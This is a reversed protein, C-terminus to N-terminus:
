AAAVGVRVGAQFLARLHAANRHVDFEAEMLRRANAALRARLAPSSLLREIAAALAAPDHQPVMLGTEGDRLVEPIGTVDTSVCPTGLAMAELLVTPLGDRDSDGGVVCPAAFLAGEQVYRMIDAQPRPGVIQVQADLGYHAIRARLDAELPGAGVIQCEFARGGRALLACAEVLDAFGKKEVLRGVAVVRPPRAQSPEFRFHDLDLGNYVRHVRAAAPGYVRRLYALNYDSVTVVAAAERLKRALDDPRVSEHFIDKAHATFTFPLGSFHAALRAVTTATTGFHAHLHQLGKQRAHRAILLAQYLDEVEEGRAADLSAWGGTARTAEQVLAWLDSSRRPQTLLYRVPARVRAITDQFHPDDFPRLSFIEIEAGAAEHALIENVIFTESYRPYRKLVYGIRPRAAAPSVLHGQM